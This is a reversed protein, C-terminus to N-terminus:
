EKETLVAAHDKMFQQIEGSAALLATWQRGYLTVPFRQLGYVSVAGKDSVKYSLKHVQNFLKNWLESGEPVGAARAEDKTIKLM